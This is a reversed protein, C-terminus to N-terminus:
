IQNSYKKPSSGYKNKFAKSFAYLSSYNLKESIATISFEGEDILLRAADLRRNHYYDNLTIEMTSKFLTSLYSYNYSFVEALDNLNKITYINTDIYHM